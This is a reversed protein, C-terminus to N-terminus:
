QRMVAKGNRCECVLGVGVPVGLRPSGAGAEVLLLLGADTVGGEVIRRTRASSSGTLTHVHKTTKM